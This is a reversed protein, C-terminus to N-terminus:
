TQSSSQNQRCNCGFYSRVHKMSEPCFPYKKLENNYSFILMKTFFNHAHFEIRLATNTRFHSHNYYKEIYVCVCVCFKSGIKSTILPFSVNAYPHINAARECSWFYM